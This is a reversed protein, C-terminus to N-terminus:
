WRRQGGSDDYDGDDDDDYRVTYRYTNKFASCRLKALHESRLNERRVNKKKRGNERTQAAATATTTRKAACSLLNPVEVNQVRVMKREYRWRHVKKKKKHVM